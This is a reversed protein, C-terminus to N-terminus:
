SGLPGPLRARWGARGCLYWTPGVRPSCSISLHHRLEGEMPVGPGAWCGWRGAEPCLLWVCEGVSVAEHTCAWESATGYLLTPPSVGSVRPNGFEARLLSWGFGPPDKTRFHSPFLYSPRIGWQCVHPFQPVSCPLPPPHPNVLPGSTLVLARVWSGLRKMCPLHGFVRSPSSTDWLSHLIAGRM